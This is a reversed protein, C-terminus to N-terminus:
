IYYTNSYAFGSDKHLSLRDIDLLIRISHVIEVVIELLRYFSRFYSSIIIHHKFHLSILVWKIVWHTSSQHISCIICLRTLPDWLINTDVYKMRFILLNLIEITWLIRHGQRMADVLDLGLNSPTLIIIIGQLIVMKEERM